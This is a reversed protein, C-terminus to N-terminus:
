SPSSNFPLLANTSSFEQLFIHRYIRQCRVRVGGRGDQGGGGGVVWWGGWGFCLLTDPSGTTCLVSISRTGMVRIAAPHFRLIEHSLSELCLFSQPHVLPTGLTYLALTSRKGHVPHKHVHAGPYNQLSPQHSIYVVTASYLHM